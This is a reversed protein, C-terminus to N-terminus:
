GPWAPVPRHNMVPPMKRVPPQKAGNVTRRSQYQSLVNRYRTVSAKPTDAMSILAPRRRHSWRSGPQNIPTIKEEGNQISRRRPLDVIM